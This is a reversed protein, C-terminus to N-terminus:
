DDSDTAARAYREVLAAMDRHFLSNSVVRTVGASKAARLTAADKHPAFVLVPLGRETLRGVRRWVDEAEVATGDVIVLRIDHDGVRGAVEAVSPALVPEFGLRRLNSRITVSFFVDRIVVVVTGRAGRTADEAPRGTM